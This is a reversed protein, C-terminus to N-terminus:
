GETALAMEQKKLLATEKMVWAMTVISSLIDAVPYAAWIGTLGFFLPLLLIMPILFLVQRSSSLILAPKAKGIAQFLSAGIVQFGVLPYGICLIRLIDEGINILEVDRSFMLLLVRPALMLLGFVAVSYITSVKIGLNLAGRVRELKKAGYNFGLIPQLGQVVGFMPLFLFMMLRNLIGMIALHHDNGYHGLSHYLVVALVSGAVTRALTSAGLKMVEPILSFELRIDRLHLELVAWGKWHYLLVYLSAFFLAIVTAVAAGRIGMNFGFIFVPDLILNLGTGLMMSVMAHKANGEARINHNQSIVFGYFVTGAMIVFMYDYAYPLIAETAGFLMLIPELWILGVVTVVLAILLIMAISNGQAREAREDDGAGLARSIISASGVGIAMAISMLLMQIPFAIALGGLAMTGVGQGIFIADVLNYLSNVMMGITAPTSMRVLLKGIKETGLEKKKQERM